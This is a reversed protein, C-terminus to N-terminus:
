ELHKAKGEDRGPFQYEKNWWGKLDTIEEKTGDTKM